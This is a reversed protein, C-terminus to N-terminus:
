DSPSTVGGKEERNIRMVDIALQWMLRPKKTRM